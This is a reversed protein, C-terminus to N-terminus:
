CQISPLDQPPAPLQIAINKIATGSTTLREAQERMTTIGGDGDYWGACQTGPAAYVDLTFSGDPVWMVFLGDSDTLAWRSDESVGSSARLWTEHLGQGDSGSLVGQILTRRRDVSYTEKCSSSVTADGFVETVLRALSPDYEELERRTNAHGPENFGFWIEVGEAWYEASNTAAYTYDWLGAARAETFMTALRRGFRAGPQRKEIGVFHVAHAFEHILVEGGNGHPDDPYCLLNEESTVVLPDLFFGRLEGEGPDGIWEVWEPLESHSASKGLVVVRIGDRAMSATLDARDSLMEGIIDRARHLAEDPVHSASVIPIGGADLYKEYFPDLGLSRPPSGLPDAEEQSPEATTACRPGHPLGLFNNPISGLWNQFVTNAPACLGSNNGFAFEDLGALRTLTSPLLGTLRNENFALYELNTLHGLESPIVSGLRNERLDLLELNSLRGLEPPIAGGLRNGNLRLQRLNGLRGLEPPIAGGLRNHELELLELNTLRGLESPIAGGLQNNVLYLRGLNSLGGLETPIAGGLRTDYLGLSQLNSLRGLESPIVGILGNGSLWLDRLNTLNGIEPPIVGALGNGQLDLNTVRGDSDTWIGYWEDLPRDSLWNTNDAWNAGNTANYLAVLAARDDPCNVVGVFKDGVGALWSRFAADTPACLGTGHVYLQNLSTLGTFSGPLPGSLNPNGSLILSDLNALRGLDSPVQGSLRNDRLWLNYLNSLHGLQSPIQGSLQNNGLILERLASLNGLQIPIRGSLENWSLGLYQLNTLNGLQSPIRGSLENWSLGLYQLNTLNGLQSPIRGSLENWSLGLHQLNTLNGLQSPIEGSLRNATPSSPECGENGCSGGDNGLDLWSLHTLGGMVSPIRGILRNQALSLNTVRGEADTSVGHWEGLPKDSLWNTNNAWNAGNTANYLAVLADRATTEEDDQTQAPAGIDFGWCRISGDTHIACSHRGGAAVATFTGSPAVSQGAHNGDFGINSGWCRISGGTRIACSHRGGAAVATYTGSPAVAQGSENSGWCVIAGGTRIACSHRGGAAVATFTGSPAVSQGAHNGDFGINSGWCRISGDTHIACSHRGGAAVATYTGPPPDTRDLYTGDFDTESGWCRISTDTHIACSHREGAAVATYTGPPADTRGSAGEEEILNPGWCVISRDAIGPDTRIACSHRDGAALATFAGSPADTEGAENHGWCVISRDTRIACSHREGAALAAYTDPPADIVEQLGSEARHLFAAMQGRTVDDNPCFRTGDGCGATIGSAALSAVSQAYWANMPVDTFAPPDAAAPLKYARTLFAAMQSRTVFRNPCFRTGDNPDCGFTIALEAMREIFPAHFSGAVVDAPFRTEALPTPDAKDIVRVIWVAMTKRDLPAGPCLKSTACETGEFVGRAALSSVAASYFADAPVDDFGDTTAEARTADPVVGLVSFAVMVVLAAVGRRGHQEKVRVKWTPEEGFFVVEM